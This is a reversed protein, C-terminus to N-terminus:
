QPIIILTEPSSASSIPTILYTDVQGPKTTGTIFQRKPIGSGLGATNLEISYKGTDKGTIQIKYTGKKIGIQTYEIWPAPTPKTSKVDQISEQLGYSSDPIDL